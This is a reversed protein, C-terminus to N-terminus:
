KFKNLHIKTTQWKFFRSQASSAGAQLRSLCSARGPARAEAPPPRPTAKCYAFLWTRMVTRPAPAPFRGRQPYKRLRYQKAM